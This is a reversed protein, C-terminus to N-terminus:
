ENFLLNCQGMSELAPLIRKIGNRVFIHMKPRKRLDAKLKDDVVVVRDSTRKQSYCWEFPFRNESNKITKLSFSKQLIGKLNQTSSWFQVNKHM